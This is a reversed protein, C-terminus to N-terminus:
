SDDESQLQLWTGSTTTLKVHALGMVYGAQATGYISVNAGKLLKLLVDATVNRSVDELSVLAYPRLRVSSGGPVDVPDSAGEALTKGGMKITVNVTLDTISFVGGNVVEVPMEVKIKLGYPSVSVDGAEVEIDGLAVPLAALVILAAIIASLIIICARLALLPARV